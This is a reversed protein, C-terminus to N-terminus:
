QLVKPPLIADFVNDAHSMVSFDVARPRGQRRIRWYGVLDKEGPVSTRVTIWIVEVRDPHESPTLGRMNDTAVMWSELIMAVRSAGIHKAITKMGAICANREADNSFPAGVAVRPDGDLVFIPILRGDRDFTTKAHNRVSNFFFEASPISIGDVLATFSDLQERGKRETM